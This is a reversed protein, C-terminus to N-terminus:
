VRTEHTTGGAVAIYQNQQRPQGITSPLSSNSIISSDPPSLPLQRHQPLIVGGINAHHYHQQGARRIEELEKKLLRDGEMLLRRDDPVQPRAQSYRIIGPQATITPVSVHPRPKWGQPTQYMPQRTRNNQGDLYSPSLTAGPQYRVTPSQPTESSARSDANMVWSDLANSRYSIASNASPSNMPPPTPSHSGRRNVEAPGHHDMRALAPPPSYPGPQYRNMMSAANARLPLVKGNTQQYM